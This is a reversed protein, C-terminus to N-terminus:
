IQISIHLLISPLWLSRTYPSLWATTVPLRKSKWKGPDEKNLARLPYSFILNPKIAKCQDWSLFNFNEFHEHPPNEIITRVKRYSGAETKNSHFIGLSDDYGIAHGSFCDKTRSVFIITQTFFLNPTGFFCWQQCVPNFCKCELLFLIGPDCVHGVLLTGSQHIQAGSPPVLFSRWWLRSIPKRRKRVRKSLPLATCGFLRALTPYIASLFIFSVAM